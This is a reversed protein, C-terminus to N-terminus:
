SEGEPLAQPQHGNTQALRVRHADLLAALGATADWPQEGSPDTLALKQMTRGYTEPYRRELKWAAANWNGESAAQEIKALWGIAARGEAEAMRDRLEALPTGPKATAAKKRWRQFTDYSIGAYLAALEYTAGVLLANVLKDIYRSVDLPPRGNQAM